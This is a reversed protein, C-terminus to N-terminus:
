ATRELAEAILKRTNAVGYLAIFSGMRPGQSSGLLTEYLARFWDRLSEFGYEEKKGIEYVATQLDEAPTDDGSRALEEDLARLAAAENPEPARRNLTPAIFDRNYALARNILADLEPHHTPNLDHIYNGLYSWVQEHTAGAGLVGVLNLLLAYSVPLTDGEGGHYGNARLLHWVPNGLQQELPQEPIKARFQWYEDVAKPIVGVHLSKASKPERFIYFGLSEETGYTLWEDITLGNGKSKSIKEGKEDLFLEYIMVEPMRGGLARVIRGSQTVSDTLDKGSMEYDVGLAYWRMAWDVKWQLKAKGGFVCQEVTEGEDEFRVIGNAADVVTVPVQLVVGSKESIPLVPSYTKQREARLTPLMIDMIADFTELVRVLPADFAGSNYRDSAAVFEYEFGFRDLFDRLMANNHHAFSEFKGFPDPLRSLPQGLHRAMLEQQPVNDPVKRLGDMDDSFAVLRTPAGGSVIEYARRVLTTRLVEQFTGIHPLGSPGYGTEFLVPAGGPKGDPYRKVLKMAEQFPWAKSVRAASILADDFM